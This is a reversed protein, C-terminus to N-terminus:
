VKMALLIQWLERIARPITYHLVAGSDHQYPWLERIARPITYYLIKLSGCSWLWLERIARPITYHGQIRCVPMPHWLERIARPITYNTLQIICHLLQWLERIARPITYYAICFACRIATRHAKQKLFFEVTWMCFPSRGASLKGSSNSYVPVAKRYRCAPSHLRKAALIGEFPKRTEERRRQRQM